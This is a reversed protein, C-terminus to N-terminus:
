GQPYGIEEIDAAIDALSVEPNIGSVIAQSLPKQAYIHEIIALDITRECLDEACSQYTEPDGDLPGLLGASGDPDVGEPWEIPGVQWSPDGPGRWLCFTAGEVSFAPEALSRAFAPPVHDIVGPWTRKPNWRYPTMPADHVFGKFFCGNANFLAFFDDGSGDRMSGMQEGEAWRANFSYYRGGGEPLLIAELMAMSQLLRRLPEIDPMGALDRTSIM